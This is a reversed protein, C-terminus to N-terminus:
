RSTKSRLRTEASSDSEREQAACHEKRGIRQAVDLGDEVDVVGKEVPHDVIGSMFEAYLVRRVHDDIEAMPVKGDKAAQLLAPGFYDAMPQEQDLGAASAKETSHTGDWDSIVFGKYGWDKKLVDHLIYTNECAYDGNIRNYSCMVAGPNAIQIGIHFALLDTEQLARKSIIANVVNRGTEQDNLVYHKMDGIVHQAQECKMLNGVMTGALLPDEGAYEFTRGNRPERTLNVGGGLTMNFGQARLERGILAGYECAGQTDWSSAAALALHFRRRTAAMREATAFATLPTLFSYASSHGFAECRRRLRRRRQLYPDAADAMASAHEMGNGHLLSIKEELTMQKLVLEAREEPSLSSNM